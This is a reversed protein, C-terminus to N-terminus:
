GGAPTERATLRDILVESLRWLLRTGLRPHQAILAQFDIDSMSLIQCETLTTVTASRPRQSVLAMEGFHAGEGLRNIERGNQVVAVQGDLVIYLRDGPEGQTLITEGPPLSSARLKAVVLSIEALSLSEFLWVRNLTALKRLTMRDRAQEAPRVDKPHEVTVVVATVNDRTGSAIALAILAEPPAGAELRAKLEPLADGKGILGDSCVLLRDGDILDIVLTDVEVSPQTGVARTLQHGLSPNLKDRPLGQRVLEELVTHDRTLQHLEGRRSLYVRSDGVHGVAAVRGQVLVLSMTCGMGARGQGDRAMRYVAGAAETVATRVLEMLRARGAPGDDLGALEAARGRVFAQVAQAAAQSAVEGAAHGGMGDCVVYLRLGEDIVYYDENHPRVPGVDTAGVGRTKM